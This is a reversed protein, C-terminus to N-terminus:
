SLNSNLYEKLSRSRFLDNATFFVFIGFPVQTILGLLIPYNLTNLGFILNILIDLIMVLVALAISTKFKLFLLIIVLPDLFVLSTWFANILFLAFKYGLFGMKLIDISHSITGITFGIIYFLIVATNHKNHIRFAM